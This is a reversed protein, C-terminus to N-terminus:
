RRTANRRVFSRRVLLRGAGLVFASRWGFEQCRGGACFLTVRRLCPGSGSGHLSWIECVESKLRRTQEPVDPLRLAMFGVARRFSQRM